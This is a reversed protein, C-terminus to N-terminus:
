GFRKRFLEKAYDLLELDLQNNAAVVAMDDDDYSKDIRTSKMRQVPVGVSWGFTDAIAALSTEFQDQLGFVAYKDRLNSKAIALLRSSSKDRWYNLYGATYRTQMNDVLWSNTLGWRKKATRDFIESLGTCQHLRKQEHNGEKAPDLAPQRIFFYHSIAREIPDRLLTFSRCKGHIFHNMGYPNHGILIRFDSNRQKVLNGIGHFKKIEDSTFNENILRKQLSTGAVKPIHTFIIKEGNSMQSREYSDNTDPM